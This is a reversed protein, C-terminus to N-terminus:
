PVRTATALYIGSQPYASIGGPPKYTFFLLWQAGDYSPILSPSGIRDSPSIQPVGASTITVLPNTAGSMTWTYGWDDSRAIGIGYSGELGIQASIFLCWLTIGDPDLFVQSEMGIDLNGWVGVQGIKRNFVPTTPDLVFPSLGGGYKDTSRGLRHTQTGGTIGTFGQFFMLMEQTSGRWVPACELVGGGWRNPEGVVPNVVLFGNHWSQSPELLKVKPRQCWKCINGPLLPSTGAQIISIDGVGNPRNGPRSQFYTIYRNLLPSKIKAPTDLGEDNPSGLVPVLQMIPLGTGGERNNRWDLLLNGRVPVDTYSIQAPYGTKSGPVFRNTVFMMEYVSSDDSLRVNPEGCQNQPHFNVGSATCRGQVTFVNAGSGPWTPPM